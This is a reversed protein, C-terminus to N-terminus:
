LALSGTLMAWIQGLEAVRGGGQTNLETGIIVIQAGELRLVRADFLPLLEDCKITPTRATQPRAVVCGRKFSSKHLDEEGLQLHGRVPPELESPRLRM